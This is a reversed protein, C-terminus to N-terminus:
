GVDESQGDAASGEGGPAEAGGRKGRRGRELMEIIVEDAETDNPDVPRLYYRM